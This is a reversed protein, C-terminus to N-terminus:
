LYRLRKGQALMLSVLVTKYLVFLSAFFFLTTKNLTLIKIMLFLVIIVDLTM